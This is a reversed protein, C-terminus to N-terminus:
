GEAGTGVPLVRQIMEFLQERQFPKSLYATCGADLAKRSDEEEMAYATLAIIPLREHQKKTRLYRTVDLGSLGDGLNIDMLVLDYATESVMGIATMGDKAWSITADTRLFHKVLEATEVTDEVLLVNLQRGLSVSPNPVASPPEQVSRVPGKPKEIVNSYPLRVIFTTGQGRLSSVEVSGGMAQVIRHTITLGLGTGEFERGYGWSEQKFEDFIHPLFDESIGIGSDEVMIVFYEGKPLDSTRHSIRESNHVDDPESRRVHVRVTGAATFKLANGVLNTIIQALYGPDTVVELRQVDSHFELALGKPSALPDLMRVARRAEGIVDFSSLRLKFPSSESRALDLIGNITRLLRTGSSLIMSAYEASEKDPASEALVSAFGLIATMPTRVEHSINALFSTKLRNMEEAQEKARLAAFREQELQAEMRRRETIDQASGVVRIAKLDENRVVLGRDWLYLYHGDQHRIRYEANFNSQSVTADMMTSRLMDRDEPHVRDFWWDLTQTEPDAPDYGTLSKLLASRHVTGSVINWEYILSNVAEAALRFRENANVLAEEAELHRTIDKLLALSAPKGEFDITNSTGEMFVVTGDRKAHVWTGHSYRETKMFRSFTHGQPPRIDLLTMKAFEEASYGYYERAARNVQVFRLTEPDVVWMPAPSDEFLLRYKAELAALTKEAQRVTTIERAVISIAAIRSEKYVPHLAIEAIQKTADFAFEFATHQGKAAQELSSSWLAQEEKSGLNLSLLCTGIELPLSRSDFLKSFAPSVSLIKGHVDVVLLAIETAELATDLKISHPTEGNKLFSSQAPAFKRNEALSSRGNTHPAAEPFVEESSPKGEPRVNVEDVLNM